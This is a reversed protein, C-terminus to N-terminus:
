DTDFTIDAMDRRVGKTESDKVNVRRVKEVISLDQIFCTQIDEPEPESDGM